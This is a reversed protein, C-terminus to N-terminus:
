SADPNVCVRPCSRSRVCTHHTFGFGHEEVSLTDKTIEGLVSSCKGKSLLSMSLAAIRLYASPDDRPALCGALPCGQRCAGPHEEQLLVPGNSGAPSWTFPFSRPFTRM